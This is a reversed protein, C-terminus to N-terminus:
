SFPEFDWSKQVEIRCFKSSDVWFISIESCLCYLIKFEKMITEKPPNKRICVFSAMKCFFSHENNTFTKGTYVCHIKILKKNYHVNRLFTM